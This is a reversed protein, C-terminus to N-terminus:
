RLLRSRRRDAYVKGEAQCLPCYYTERDEYYIVAIRTGCRPCPEGGKRHVALGELPEKM